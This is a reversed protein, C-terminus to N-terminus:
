RWCGFFSANSSRRSGESVEGWLWNRENISKLLWGFKKIYTERHWSPACSDLLCWDARVIAHIKWRFFASQKKPLQLFFNKSANGWSWGRRPPLVHLLPLSIKHICGAWVYVCAPLACSGQQSVFCPPTEHSPMAGEGSFAGTFIKHGEGRTDWWCSQAAFNLAFGPNELSLECIQGLSGAFSLSFHM